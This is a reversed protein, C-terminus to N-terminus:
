RIKGDELLVPMLGAEEQMILDGRDLVGAVTDVVPIYLPVGEPQISSCRPEKLKTSSDISVVKLSKMGYFPVMTSIYLDFQTLSRGAYICDPDQCCFFM